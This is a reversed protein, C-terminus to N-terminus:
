REGHTELTRFCFAAVSNLIQDATKTWKFPKPDENYADIFEHIAQLLEEVSHHSGRKIKQNTLIGFWCEIQNLWSAHTPTFHVHFRPHRALWRKIAPTKHTAYNDCIMHVDLDVPVKDKITDLFDRFERARHRDYCKGIVHGTAVDLAAFLSTVGNREYEPTGREAQGPRLPLIPQTRNLAQIQSKEDVSLVIANDPPNMYLGVVDRVKEIFLPDTSLQFTESCRHPKIEFARWVRGVSSHSIGLKKAMARTSWHSRGKPMTELTETILREVVQDTLKLNPGPRDEDLLGDLRDRIFRRRWKSVTGPDVGLKQAVVQNDVGEACCLVIRSRLALRQSTTARRVYRELTEREKETLALGAKPAGSRKADKLGEMRKAEFRQCWTTVQKPMVGLRRAIERRPLGEADLLVISARIALRKRSSDTALAELQEREASSLVFPNPRQPM